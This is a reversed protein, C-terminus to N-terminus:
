RGFLIVVSERPTHCASFSYPIFLGTAKSKPLISKQKIIVIIRESSAKITVKLLMEPSFSFPVSLSITAFATGRHFIIKAFIAPLQVTNRTENRTPIMEPNTKSVNVVEIGIKDPLQKIGNRTIIIILRSKRKMRKLIPIKSDILVLFEPAEIVADSNIHTSIAM